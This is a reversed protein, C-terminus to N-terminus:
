KLEALLRRKEQAYESEISELNLNNELEFLNFFVMFRFFSYALSVLLGKKGNKFGNKFYLWFYGLMGKTLNFVSFKDGSDYKHLAEAQAYRLHGTVFKNLNYLSFHRLAFEPNNPLILKEKDQGLFKGMGHIHNNSFDVMDKMFLCPTAGKHAPIKTEGWLYTYLPVMVYKFKNQSSIEAFKELLSKPALDDAFGWYIWDTSVNELIVKYNEINEVFLKNTKPRTIFKAGLSESINKTEDTSGGDMVLVEGYKIFNRIVDQIRKEENLTFIVFTINKM